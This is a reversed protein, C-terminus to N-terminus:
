GDAIGLKKIASEAAKQQASKKSSGTGRGLEEGESLVAIVFEKAHDPGGEELVVYEPAKGHKKQTFDQLLAKWNREPSQMIESLTPSLRQFLFQRASEIGGDLYIAGILAEFLDALISERGKGDNMREGRGLLLFGEVELTVIYRMCSSAEVLRSRLHSLEGEPTKPLYRFLYDSTLLGLVADGLFELRENHSSVASRNENFFSRHTFALLLLSKDKFSYGIREEIIPLKDLPHMRHLWPPVNGEFLELKARFSQREKPNIRNFLAREFNSQSGLIAGKPM